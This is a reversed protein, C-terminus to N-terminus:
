NLWFFYHLIIKLPKRPKKLFLFFPIFTPLAYPKQQAIALPFCPFSWKTSIISFTPSISEL